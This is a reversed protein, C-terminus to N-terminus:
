GHRAPGAALLDAPDDVDCLVADDPMPVEIIASARRKLLARGGVDGVLMSLEAFLRAPWLVPNGRHGAWTPVVIPRAGHAAFADILRDIHRGRVRPMDGLLVLAAEVGAPLAELGVRLSTSLGDAYDPNEAFAVARGALTECVDHARHGTVVVVPHAKSALAADTAAAVLPRGDIEILLKFREPMRTGRGAALVIAAVSRRRLIAGDVQGGPLRGFTM